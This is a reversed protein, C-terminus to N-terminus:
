HYYVGYNGNPYFTLTDSPSEQDLCTSAPWPLWAICIQWTVEQQAIGWGQGYFASHSCGFYNYTPYRTGGFCNGM